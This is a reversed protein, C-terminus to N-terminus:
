LQFIELLCIFVTIQRDCLLFSRISIFMLSFYKPSVILHKQLSFVAAKHRLQGLLTYRDLDLDLKKQKNVDAGNHESINQYKGLLKDKTLELACRM